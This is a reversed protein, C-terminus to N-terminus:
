EAVDTLTESAPQPPKKKPKRIKAPKAPTASPATAGTTAPTAQELLDSSNDILIFLIFKFTLTGFLYPQITRTLFDVFLM